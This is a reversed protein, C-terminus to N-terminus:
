WRYRGEKWVRREESRGRKGDAHLGNALGSAGGHFRADVKRQDGGARREIRHDVDPKRAAAYVALVTEGEGGGEREAEGLLGGADRKGAFHYDVGGDIGLGPKVIQQGANRAFDFRVIAPQPAVEIANAGVLSELTRAVHVPLRRGVHAAQLDAFEGAFHFLGDLDEQVAVHRVMEVRPELVGHVAAREQCPPKGALARRNVEAGISVLEALGFVAVYISDQLVQCQHIRLAGVRRFRGEIIRGKLNDERWRGARELVGAPGARAQQIRIHQGNRQAACVWSGGAISGGFGSVTLVEM